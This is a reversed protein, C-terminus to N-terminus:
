RKGGTSKSRALEELYKRFGGVEPKRTDWETKAPLARSADWAAEVKAEAVAEATLERLEAVTPFFKATKLAKLCGRKFAELPLDELGRLMLNVFQPTLAKNFNMALTEVSRRFEPEGDVDGVLVARRREEDAMVM